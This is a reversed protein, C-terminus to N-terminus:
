FCECSSCHNCMATISCQSYESCHYKCCTVSLYISYSIRCLILRHTQTCVFALLTGAQDIACYWFCFFILFPLFVFYLQEFSSATRTITRPPLRSPLLSDVTPLLCQRIVPRAKGQTMGHRPCMPGCMSM